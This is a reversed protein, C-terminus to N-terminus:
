ADPDIVSWRIRRKSLVFKFYFGALVLVAIYLLLSPRGADIDFWDSLGFIAALILGLIPFLPYLITRFSDVGTLGKARGILNGMSVLALNFLVVSSLLILLTRESLFCLPISVACLAMTAIWPSKFSPHIKTLQQNLRDPWLGDRSLSFVFRSQQLVSALLSNFIAGAVGLSVMTAIMPSTRDSLFASLPSEASLMAELDRASLSVAIMSGAIFVAGILCAWLIVPGLDKRPTDMEEGFNIAQNGGVTAYGGTVAALALISLPTSQLTGDTMVQPSLIVEALDRVPHLFGAGALIILALFEVALFIGTIWVNTRINLIGIAGVCALTLAATSQIPLDPWIFRMYATFGVSGVALSAPVSMVYTIVDLFGAGLGLTRAVGAYEGGAHPFASGLEAYVVAWIIAALAGALFAIAAGTGALKLVGGGMVFVSLAPSLASMTLLFVDFPSLKHALKQVASAKTV